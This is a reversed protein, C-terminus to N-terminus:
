WRGNRAVLVVADPDPPRPRGTQGRRDLGREFPKTREDDLAKSRATLGPCARPDLVIGAEGLAHATALQSIEGVALSASQAGLEDDTDVDVRRVRLRVPRHRHVQAATGGDRSVRSHNRGSDVIPMQLTGADVVEESPTDM